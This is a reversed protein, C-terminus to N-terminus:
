YLFSAIRQLKKGLGGMRETPTEKEINLIKKHSDFRSVDLM